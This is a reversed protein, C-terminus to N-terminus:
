LVEPATFTDVTHTIIVIVLERIKILTEPKKLTGLKGYENLSLLFESFM